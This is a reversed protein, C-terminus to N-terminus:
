FRCKDYFRYYNHYNAYYDRYMDALLVGAYLLFVTILFLTSAYPFTGPSVETILGCIDWKSAPQPQGPGTDTQM